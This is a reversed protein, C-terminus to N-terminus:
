YGRTGAPLHHATGARGTRHGCSAADRCGTAPLIEGTLRLRRHEDSTESM